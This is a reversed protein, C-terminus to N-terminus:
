WPGMAELFGFGEVVVDFAAHGLKAARGLMQLDHGAEIRHDAVGLQLGLLLMLKQLGLNVGFDAQFQQRRGHTAEVQRAVREIARQRINGSDFPLWPCKLCTM